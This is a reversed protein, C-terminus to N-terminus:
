ATELFRTGSPVRLDFSVELYFAAIPDSSESVTAADFDLAGEIVYLEVAVGGPLRAAPIIPTGCLAEAVLGYLESAEPGCDADNSGVFGEVTATLTWGDEGMGGAELPVQSGDRLILRPLPEGSGITSRRNRELPVGSLAASLREGLAAFGAERAAIRAM